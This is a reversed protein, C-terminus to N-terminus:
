LTSSLLLLLSIVGFYLLLLVTHLGRTQAPLILVETL